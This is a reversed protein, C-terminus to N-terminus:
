VCFFFFFGCGWWVWIAFEFGWLFFFLFFFVELHMLFLEMFENWEFFWGYDLLNQIFSKRAKNTMLSYIQDGFSFRFRFFLFVFDSVFPLLFMLYVLSFCRVFACLSPFIVTYSHNNTTQTISYVLFFANFWNKQYVFGWKSFTTNNKLIYLFTNFRRTTQYFGKTRRNQSTRMAKSQNTQLSSRFAESSLYAWRQNSGIKLVNTHLSCWLRITLWREHVVCLM